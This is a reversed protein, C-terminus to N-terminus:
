ALDRLEDCRQAVVLKATVLRHLQEERVSAPRPLVCQRIRRRVHALFECRARLPPSITRLLDRECRQRLFAGPLVNRKQFFHLVSSIQIARSHLRAKPTKAAAPPKFTRSQCSVEVIGPDHARRRSMTLM